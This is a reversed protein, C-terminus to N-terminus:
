YFFRLALGNIPDIKEENLWHQVQLEIEVTQHHIDAMIMKMQGFIQEPDIAEEKVL